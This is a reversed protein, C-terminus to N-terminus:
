LAFVVTAQPCINVKPALERVSLRGGKPSGRRLGKLVLQEVLDFPSLPLILHKKSRLHGEGLHVGITEAGLSGPTETKNPATCCFEM